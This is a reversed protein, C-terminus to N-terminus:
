ARVVIVPIPAMVSVVSQAMGPRRLPARHIALRPPRQHNRQIDLRQGHLRVAQQLPERLEAPNGARTLLVALRSVPSTVLRLPM